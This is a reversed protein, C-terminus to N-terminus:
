LYSLSQQFPYLSILQARDKVSSITYKITARQLKKTIGSKIFYNIPISSMPPLMVPMSISPLFHVTEKTLKTVIRSPFMSIEQEFRKEILEEMKNEDIEHAFQPLIPTSLLYGPNLLESDFALKVKKCIMYYNRATFIDELYPIIKSLTKIDLKSM